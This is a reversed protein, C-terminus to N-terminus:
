NDNSLLKSVDVNEQAATSVEFDRHGIIAWRAAQTFDCTCYFGQGFDKTYHAQIIEPTTIPTTNGCYLTM